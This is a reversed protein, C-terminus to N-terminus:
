RLGSAPLITQLLRQDLGADRPAGLRYARESAERAKEPFGATLAVRAVRMWTTAVAPEMDAAKLCQSLALAPENRAEHLEALWLSTRACEHAGACSANSLDRAAQVLPASDRIRAAVTVRATLCTVADAVLACRRALVQESEEVRGLVVLLESQLRAADSRSPVIRQIAAIQKEIDRVEASDAAITGNPRQRLQTLLEQVLTVRATPNELDRAVAQELLERRTGLQQPVLNSIQVLMALGARGPPVAADVDRGDPAQAVAIRAAYDALSQDDLVALRLELFSQQKAGRRALARALLLHARGNRKSRQLARSLWPIPDQDRASLALAGGLLPFYPEAPHRSMAEKLRARFRGVEMPLSSNTSSSLAQLAKKDAQLGIRGLALALVAAIAGVAPLAYPVWRPQPTRESPPTESRRSRGGQDGLLAGLVSCCAISVAAVELGLNALNQLLVVLLGIWPALALNSRGLGVSRPRLLWGLGLLTLLGVPMGWESIWQALFNEPHSWTLGDQNVHYAPFTSEFAGRGIGFWFHDLVMPKVWAIMRLKAADREALETWQTPQFALLALLLGGGVASLSWVRHQYASRGREPGVKKALTAIGLACLGFILSAVGARSATLLTSAVLLASGLGAVGAPIPSRRSALLGLGCFAGLNLYSALNNSNLLPGTHWPVRPYDPTYFGFVDTAGVLGHFLTATAVALASLFVVTLVAPGRNSRGLLTTSLSVAAYLLWKMGEVLTASPDLTITAFSPANEQLPRLAHAWVEASQPALLKLVSLPLPIVQFYTYLALGACGLAALPVHELRRADKVMLVAGAVAVALAVCLVAVHQAGLAMASGGVVVALAGLAWTHESSREGSRSM